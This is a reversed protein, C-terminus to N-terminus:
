FNEEPIGRCVSLESGACYQSYISELYILPQLNNEKDLFAIAEKPTGNNKQIVTIEVETDEGAEERVRKLIEKKFEEYNLMKM